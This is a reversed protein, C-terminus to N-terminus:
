WTHKNLTCGTKGKQIVATISALCSATMLSVKFLMRAVVVVVVLTTHLMLDCSLSSITTLRIRLAAPLSASLATRLLSIRRIATSNMNSENDQLLM